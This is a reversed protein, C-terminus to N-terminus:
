FRDFDDQTAFVETDEEDDDAMQNNYAICFDLLQGPNMQDFSDLHTYSVAGATDCIYLNATIVSSEIGNSARLDLLLYAM